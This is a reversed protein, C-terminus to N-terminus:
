ANLTSAVDVKQELEQKVAVTTSLEKTLNEKDTTLAMNQNGLVKNDETLKAITKEMDGIKNNLGAIMTKAKVLESETVHKKNLISRIETKTKEIEANKDDLQVSMETASAKMSEIKVLSADFSSQLDSKQATVKEIQLKQNDITKISNSKDYAFIIVLCLVILSMAVYVSMNHKKEAKIEM